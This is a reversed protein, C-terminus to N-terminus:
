YTEAYFISYVIRTVKWGDPTNTLYIEGYYYEDGDAHNAKCTFKFEKESSAALRATQPQTETLDLQYDALAFDDFRCYESVDMSKPEWSILDITPNAAFERITLADKTRSAEMVLQAVDKAELENVGSITITLKSGPKGNLTVSIENNKQLPFAVETSEMNENFDSSGLVIQGNVKIVASTVRAGKEGNTVVMTYEGVPRALTFTAVKEVPKGNDRTFTAPGYVVVIKDAAQVQVFNLTVVSLVVALVLFLRLGSKM